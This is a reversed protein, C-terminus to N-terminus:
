KTVRLYQELYRKTAQEAASYGDPRRTPDDWRNNKKLHEMPSGIHVPTDQVAHLGGALYRLTLDDQGQRKLCLHLSKADILINTDYFLIM